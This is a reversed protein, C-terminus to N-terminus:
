SGSTTTKEVYTIVNHDVPFLGDVKGNYYKEFGNVSNGNMLFVATEADTNIIDCTRTGLGFTISIHINITITSSFIVALPELTAPDFYIKAGMGTTKINNISSSLKFIKGESTTGSTGLVSSDFKKNFLGLFHNTIGTGESPIATLSEDKVNITLLGKDTMAAQTDKYTTMDFTYVRSAAGNDVLNNGSNFTMGSFADVTQGYATSCSNIEGAALATGYDADYAPFNSKGLLTNESLYSNDTTSSSAAQSELEKKIEGFVIDLEVKASWNQMQMNTKDQTIYTAYHARSKLANVLACYLEFDYNDLGVALRLIERADASTINSDGDVDTRNYKVDKLQPITQLGLSILLAARADDAYIHGDGNVDGLVAAADSAFVQSVPLVTLLLLAAFVASLIRKTLKM